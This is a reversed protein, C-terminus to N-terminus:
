KKSHCNYATLELRDSLSMQGKIIIMMMISSKFGRSGRRIPANFQGCFM